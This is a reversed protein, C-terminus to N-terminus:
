GHCQKCAIDRAMKLHFNGTSGHPNHCLVCEALVEANHAHGVAFTKQEHCTFCTEAVTAEKFNGPTEGAHCHQCEAQPPHPKYTKWGAPVASSGSPAVVFRTKQAVEGNTWTLEHKGPSVRISLIERKGQTHESGLSKGDLRVEGKRAIIQVEETEIVSQDTPRLIGLTEPEQATTFNVASALFVLLFVLHRTERCSAHTSKVGM